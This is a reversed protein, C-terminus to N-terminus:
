DATPLHALRSRLYDDHTDIDLIVGRDAVSIETVPFEQLLRRAGQDGQLRLLRPLHLASFGVPNGRRADYVPAVIDAGKRLADALAAITAPKVHPMDALAILYAGARPAASLGCVLSAAMGEGAHECEIVTCGAGTLQATLESSGPRVVALVKPIAALLNRAAAVAIPEGAALPQLLKNQRATPDFRAGFGAALLIGVIPLQEAPSMPPLPLLAVTPLIM